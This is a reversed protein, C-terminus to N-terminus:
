VTSDMSCTNISIVKLLRRRARHRRAPRRARHRRAPRRARRRRACCHHRACHRRASRRAPRRRVCRRACHRRGCRSACCHHRGCPRRACRRVRHRRDCRGLIREFRHASGGWGRWPHPPRGAPRVRHPWSHSRAPRESACHGQRACCPRPRQLAAPCGPACTAVNTSTCTLNRPLSRLPVLSRRHSPSPPLGCCNRKRLQASTAFTIPASRQPESHATFTSKLPIGPYATAHLASTASAKEGCGFSCAGVHVLM